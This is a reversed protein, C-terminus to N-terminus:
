PIELQTDTAMQLVTHGKFSVPANSEPTTLLFEGTSASPNFVTPLTMEARGKEDKWLGSRLAERTSAPNSSFAPALATGAWSDIDELLDRISDRSM